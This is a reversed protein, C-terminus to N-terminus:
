DRGRSLYSTEQSECIAWFVAYPKIELGVGDFSFWPDFVSYCDNTLMLAGSGVLSKIEFM